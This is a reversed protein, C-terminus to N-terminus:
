FYNKINYRQVDALGKVALPEPQQLKIGLLTPPACM